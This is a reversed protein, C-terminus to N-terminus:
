GLPVTGLLLPQYYVGDVRRVDALGVDRLLDLMATIPVALYTTEVEVVVEASEVAQIRLVVRYTEGEWHWEQEAFFRRGNWLREGYPRREITGPSPPAGYDRLSLVMAGGARVCRRLERLAIRLEGISLLHPLANDCAIVADALGTPLPLARFDAVVARLSIGRAGAERCARALATSSVDTAIVEFGRAALGIAQTGIGAAADVILGSGLGWHERLVRTLAEGQREISRDWDEFILHYYEALGDYFGRVSSAPASDERTM